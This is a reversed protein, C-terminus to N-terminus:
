SGRCDPSFARSPRFAKASFRFGLQFGEFNYAHMSEGVWLTRLLANQSEVAITDPGIEDTGSFRPM